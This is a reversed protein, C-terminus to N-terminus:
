QTAIIRLNMVFACIMQACICLRGTLVYGALVTHQYKFSPCRTRSLLHKDDAPIRM